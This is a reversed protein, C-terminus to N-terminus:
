PETGMRWSADNEGSLVLAHVFWPEDDTGSEAVLQWTEPQHGAAALDDDSLWRRGDGQAAFYGAFAAFAPGPEFTGHAWPFDDSLQTLTGVHHPGIM